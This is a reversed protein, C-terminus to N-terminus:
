PHIKKSYEFAVQSFPDSNKEKIHKRAKEGARLNESLRSRWAFLALYVEHSTARKLSDPELLNRFIFYLLQRRMNFKGRLWPHAGYSCGLPLADSIEKFSEIPRRTHSRYERTIGCGPESRGGDISAYPVNMAQEHLCSLWRESPARGQRNCYLASMWPLTVENSENKLLGGFLYVWFKYFAIGLAWVDFGPHVHGKGQITLLFREPSMIEFPASPRLARESPFIWGSRGPQWKASSGFDSLKVEVPFRTPVGGELHVEVNEEPLKLLFNDLKIDGHLIRRSHLEVIPKVMEIFFDLLAVEAWPIKELGKGSSGKSAACSRLRYSSETLIKLISPAGQSFSFLYMEHERQEECNLIKGQSREYFTRDSRILSLFKKLDMTLREMFLGVPQYTIVPVYKMVNESEKLEQVIDLESDGFQTRFLRNSKWIKVVGDYFGIVRYCAGYAGENLGEVCAPTDSTPDIGKLLDELVVSKSNEWDPNDSDWRRERRLSVLKKSLIESLDASVKRQSDLQTETELLSKKMREMTDKLRKTEDETVVVDPCTNASICFNKQKWHQPADAFNVPEEGDNRHIFTSDPIPAEWSPLQPKEPTNEMRFENSSEEEREEQDLLRKGARVPPSAPAASDVLRSACIWQRLTSATPIAGSVNSERWSRPAFEEIIVERLQELAEKREKDAKRKRVAYKRDRQKQREKAALKSAEDKEKRLKQGRSKNKQIKDEEQAGARKGADPGHLKQRKKAPEEQFKPSSLTDEVQIVASGQM